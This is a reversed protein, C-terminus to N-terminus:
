ISGFLDAEDVPKLTNELSGMRSFPGIRYSVKGTVLALPIPGYLRSDNSAAQNDGALFCHGQPVQDFHQNTEM